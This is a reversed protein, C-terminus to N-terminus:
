AAALGAVGDSGTDVCRILTKDSLLVPISGLAAEAQSDDLLRVPLGIEALDRYNLIYSYSPYGRILRDLLSSREDADWDTSRALLRDGYTQTVALTRNWNGIQEPDLRGFMPGGGGM